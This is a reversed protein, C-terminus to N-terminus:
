ADKGQRFVWDDLYCFFQQYFHKGHLHHELHRKAGGFISPWLQHTSFPADYGAHSEVLLGTVVVNHLYRAMKHKPAHFMSINQVLINTLVQLAFDVPAHNVTDSAQIRGAFSSIEHHQKHGSVAPSFGHHMAYHFWSFVFDYAVIGVILEMTLRGFSIPGTDSAAHGGKVTIFILVGLLYGLFSAYMRIVYGAMGKQARVVGFTGALWAWGVHAVFFCMTTIREFPVGLVLFTGSLLTNVAIVVHLPKTDVNFSAMRIHALGPVADVISWLLIWFDFSFAAVYAEALPQKFFKQGVATSWVSNTLRDLNWLETIYAFALAFPALQM